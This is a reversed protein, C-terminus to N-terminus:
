PKLMSWTRRPEATMGENMGSYLGGKFENRHEAQIAPQSQKICNVFPAGGGM